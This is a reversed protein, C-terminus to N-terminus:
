IAQVHMMLCWPLPVAVVPMAMCRVDVPGAADVPCWRLDRVPLFEPVNLRQGRALPRLELDLAQASVAHASYRNGSLGRGSFTGAPAANSHASLFPKQGFTASGRASQALTNGAVSEAGSFFHLNSFTAVSM